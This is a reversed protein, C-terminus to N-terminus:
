YFFLIFILFTCFDIFKKADEIANPKTMQKSFNIM